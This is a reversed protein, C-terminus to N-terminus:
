AGPRRFRGAAIGAAILDAVADVGDPPEVLVHRPDVDAGAFEDHMKRTAAPDDFAHDPRTAVRTLCREISPLLVVYDLEAVGVAAAFTPLFWPGVIGDFVTAYGGAVFEATAAGTARIVVENQAQSEPLWPEIAGSALFDFFADGAVLVSRDFRTALAAAVTSKGAGPPGTVVILGSM